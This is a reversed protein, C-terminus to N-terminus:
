RCDEIVRGVEAWAPLVLPPQGAQELAFRGRSFAMADLLPDSAPLVAAVYAPEGGTAGTPVQRALSTTRVTMPTAVGGARSLFLRRNPLDCRLTALPLGGAPGYRAESGGTDRAYSWNGPTVPWDRWDAPLPASTARPPAVPTPPPARNVPPRPTNPACSAGAALAIILISPRIV